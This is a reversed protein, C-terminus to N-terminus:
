SAASLSCRANAFVFIGLTVFTISIPLVKRSGLRDLLAGGFFQCIAFARTYVAAITSVQAISLGVDAQVRPNVVSYGTQFSFLYVVFVVALTWVWWGAAGGPSAGTSSQSKEKATASM